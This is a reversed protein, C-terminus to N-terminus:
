QVTHVLGYKHNNLLDNQDIGYGAFIQAGILSQVNENDFIRIQRSSLAGSSYPPVTGGDYPVWTTGNHLHWQNNQLRGVYFNGNRGADASAVQITGILTLNSAAGQVTGKFYYNCTVTYIKGLTQSALMSEGSSGYGLYFETGCLNAINGGSLVNIIANADSLIGTFYSPITSGTYQTWSTGNNVLWFDGGEQPQRLDASQQPTQLGSATAYQPVHAGFFVNSAQGALFDVNMRASINLSSESWKPTVSQVFDPLRPPIGLNPDFASSRWFLYGANPECHQDFCLSLPALIEKGEEYAVTAIERLALSEAPTYAHVANDCEVVSVPTLVLTLQSANISGNVSFTEPRICSTPISLEVWRTGAGTISGNSESIDMTMYESPFGLASLSWSPVVWHGTVSALASPVSFSLMALLALRTKM